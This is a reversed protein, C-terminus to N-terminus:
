CRGNGPPSCRSVGSESQPGGKFVHGTLERTILPSMYVQGQRITSIATVLQVDADEKLLFGRAGASIVHYFYELDRHM